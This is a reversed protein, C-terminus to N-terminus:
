QLDKGRQEQTSSIRIEIPLHDLESALPNRPFLDPKVSVHEWLVGNLNPAYIRDLRTSSLNDGQNKKFCTFFPANGLWERAVDILDATILINQLDNAGSNEYASRSQSRVDLSVDPVCNADIGLITTKNLHPGLTNTFFATREGAAAPAYAAILRFPQNEVSTDIRTVRGAGSTVM